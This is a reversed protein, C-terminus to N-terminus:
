DGSSLSCCNFYFGLGVYEIETGVVIQSKAVVATKDFGSLVHHGLASESHRAHAENASSLVNVLFEFCSDAVIEVGLVCDKVTRAEIGVASQKLCQETRFIGNDAVGEVVCGNDVAHAQALCFAVAIGVGVHFLEFLAELLSLLLAEADDGGVAHERHVTIHSWYILYHLEGLLIIGHYHDVLRVRCTYNAWCTM